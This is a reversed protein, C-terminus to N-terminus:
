PKRGLVFRALLAIQDAVILHVGRDDGVENVAGVIEEAAERVEPPLNVPEGAANWRAQIEEENDDNLGATIHDGDHGPARSCDIDGWPAPDLCRPDRHKFADREDADFPPRPTFYHYDEITLTLARIHEPTAARAWEGDWERVDANLPGNSVRGSGYVDLTYVSVDAGQRNFWWPHERVEAATPPEKRWATM